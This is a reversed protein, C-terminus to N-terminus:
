TAAIGSRVGTPAPRLATGPTAGTLRGDALVRTGAVLVDDIGTALSTPEEYTSTAQVADTSVVLLDAAWGPTVEGRDGLGFRRVPAASLHDVLQAWPLLGPRAYDALYRAFTGFARPHPHGGVFIGDSGGTHGDRAFLPALEQPARPLPVQMIASVQLRAAILVDIALTAPDTGDAAAAAALTRGQHRRHVDSAIHSLTIRESWRPGLDPRRTAREVIARRVRERGATTRVASELARTGPSALDPPLLLMSLITCGRSYPYCDYSLHVGRRELDDLLAVALGVPAHLHSVHTRVGTARAIRELEQLGTGLNAEYGGRLHSVHVLGAAAVERCLAILEDTDAFVGPVYDLGTSLGVAGEALGTRVLARMADLEDETAPGPADGRVEHRVTGAPVLAAVNVPTTREYTGLLAAIGGGRYTPHEGDVAAFYRGAYSGNGPAFGVGDQGIIVSTVGQRLLALQVSPDLVAADAHSHTDVFGPLVVRDACDVVTDGDGALHPGVAIILGDGVLVDARQLGGHAALVSGGRLLVRPGPSRSGASLVEGSRGM